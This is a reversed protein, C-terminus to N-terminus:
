TLLDYENVSAIVEYEHTKESFFAIISDRNIKAHFMRGQYFNNAITKDLSWSLRPSNEKLTTGRYIDIIDPLELYKKM